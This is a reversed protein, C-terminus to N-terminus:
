NSQGNTFVEATNFDVVVVAVDKGKHNRLRDAAKLTEPISALVGQIGDRGALGRAYPIDNSDRIKQWDYGPMLSDAIPGGLRDDVCLIVIVVEDSSKNLVRARERFHAVRETNINFIDQCNNLVLLNTM